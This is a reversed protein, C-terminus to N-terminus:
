KTIEWVIAGSGFLDAEYYIKVSDTTLGKYCIDGKLKDGPLITGDLSSTGCDFIEQELKSGENDKASFSLLSSVALDSTGKNEITFNAILVDGQIEASNMVITQTEVEIVEGVKYIAVQPPATPASTADGVKTGTNSSGCALATIILVSIAILPRIINKTKM